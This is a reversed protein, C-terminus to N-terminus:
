IIRFFHERYFRLEEISEIVDDLARHKSNKDVKNYIEPHWRRALEKITSVDIHRYHFFSELEPMLRAMFRRDQCISNGCMPSHKPKLHQSLFDLTLKQADQVTLDSALVKEVLGTKAHQKTNWDDMKELVELPQHLVIEPGQAIINLDADTVITAVEIIHDRLTDLGTMELDIWILRSTDQWDDSM